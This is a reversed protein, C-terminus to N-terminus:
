DRVLVERVDGRRDRYILVSSVGNNIEIVESGQPIDSVTPSGKPGRPAWGEYDALSAPNVKMEACSDWADFFFPQGDAWKGEIECITKARGHFTQEGVKFTRSPAPAPPAAAAATVTATMVVLGISAAALSASIPHQLLKIMTEAGRNIQPCPREIPRTM